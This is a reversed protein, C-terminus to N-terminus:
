DKLSVTMPLVLNKPKAEPNEFNYIDLVKKFLGFAKEYPLNKPPRALQWSKGQIANGKGETRTAAKLHLVGMEEIPFMPNTEEWAKRYAALQLWYTTYIANGFKLDVLWRKGDMECVIDLTGAYKYQHSIITVESAIVKPTFRKFFEVFRLVGQWTEMDFIKDDWVIEEGKILREAANHVLSGKEAAREAIIKAQPGVMKLWENFQAGKPFLDLITTCSPYWVSDKETAGAEVLYYRQDLFSIRNNELDEFRNRM